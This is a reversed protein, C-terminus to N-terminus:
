HRYTGPFVLDHYDLKKQYATRMSALPFLSMDKNLLSVMSPLLATLPQPEHRAWWGLDSSPHLAEAFRMCLTIPVSTM